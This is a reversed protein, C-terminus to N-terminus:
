LKRLISLLELANITFLYIKKNVIPILNSYEIMNENIYENLEEYVNLINEEIREIQTKM